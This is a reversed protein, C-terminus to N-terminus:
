TRGKVLERSCLLFLFFPYFECSFPASKLTGHTRMTICLILEPANKNDSNYIKM